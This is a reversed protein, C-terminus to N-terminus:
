QANLKQLLLPFNLRFNDDTSLDFQFTDIGIGMLLLSKPTFDKEVLIPIITKKKTQAYRVETMCSDSNAYDQSICCIVYDADDLAKAMQDLISESNHMQEEDIWINEFENKRLEKLLKQVISRQRYSYSIMIQSQQAM